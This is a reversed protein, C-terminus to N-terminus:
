PVITVGPARFIGCVRADAKMSFRTHLSRKRLHTFNDHPWISKMLHAIQDCRFLLPQVLFLPDRLVLYKLHYVQQQQESLGEGRLHWLAALKM